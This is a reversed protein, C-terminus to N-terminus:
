ESAEPSRKSTAPLTAPIRYRLYVVGNGFHCEDAPGAKLAQTARLRSARLM